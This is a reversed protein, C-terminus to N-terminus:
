QGLQKLLLLAQANDMGTAKGLESSRKAAKVAETKKGQKALIKALTLQNYTNEHLAVSKAAWTRAHELMAKDTTNEVFLFAAENLEDPNETPFRKFHDVASVTYNKFDSREQYYTLRYASAAKEGQEPYCTAFLSEVKGPPIVPNTQLYNQFVQDIFQTVEGETVQPEFAKRNQVLFKFAKSTPDNAFRLIIQKNEPTNLDTEQDLYEGALAAARPDYAAARADILQRLFPRDRDGGRYRTELAYLNRKPDQATEGLQLFQAAPYFGAARHVVIGDPQFFLLTPYVEVGYKLALEIGEGKEMDMKLSVFHENFYVGVASDPFTQNTLMKCPGCWTTFADMFLLKNETKAKNLAEAFTTHEFHIGQASLVGSLLLFPLLFRLHSM